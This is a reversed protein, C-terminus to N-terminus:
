ILLGHTRMALHGWPASRPSPTEIQRCLQAAQEVEGGLRGGGVTVTTEAGLARNAGDLEDSLHV